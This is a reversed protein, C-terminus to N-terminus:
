SSLKSVFQVLECWHNKLNTAIPTIRTEISAFGNSESLTRSNINEGRRAQPSLISTLPMKVAKRFARQGNSHIQSPTSDNDQSEPIMLNVLFQVAHQPLRTRVRPVVAFCDRVKMRERQSFPSAIALARERHLSIQICEACGGGFLTTPCFKAARSHRTKPLGSNPHPERGQTDRPVENFL